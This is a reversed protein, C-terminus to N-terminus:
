AELYIAVQAYVEVVGFNSAIGLGNTAKTTGCRHQLEFTKPVAIVIRGKVLSNTPSDGTVASEFESSGILADTADTINALKAKHSACQYASAWADIYYSGAALTFQNAALSVISDPDFVETNLTRTRWAGSTFGGGDTGAAKQDELQAYSAFLSSGASPITAPSFPSPM